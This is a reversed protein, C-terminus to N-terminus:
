RAKHPCKTTVQNVIPQCNTTVQNVTPQPNTTMQNVTPQEKKRDKRIKNHVNWHAIAVVGSDFPIIYGKAILLKLDDETCSVSRALRKPSGVFGDDDAKMGLHFYLAQTSLPMDLFSDSDIIANAFMRHNGM